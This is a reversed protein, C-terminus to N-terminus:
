LHQNLVNTLVGGVNTLLVARDNASGNYKAIGNLNIDESIYGSSTGTLIGGVKTLIVGRDNSSGNYKIFGDRNVDGTWLARFTNGNYTVTTTPTNTTISPNVYISSATSTFDFVTTTKETMSLPTSTRIGLHNRHRVAVFYDGEPITNFYLVTNGDKDVITGDCRVLASQTAVVTSPTTANRLELFVWDAIATSGTTALVAPTTQANNNGKVQTFLASYPETTPILNLTRLNDNMLGTTTNYSGQLYVNGSFPLSTNNVVAKTTTNVCITQSVTDALTNDDGDQIASVRVKCDAFNVWSTGNWYQMAYNSMLSNWTGSSQWGNIFQVNGIPTPTAFDLQIWKEAPLDGAQQSVWSTTQTSDTVNRPMYTQGLAYQGSASVTADLALNTLGKVSKEAGDTLVDSPYGETNPAFARFERIHFHSSQTSYVRVKSTTIPTTAEISYDPRTRGFGITNSSLLSILGTNSSIFRVPLGTNATATLTATTSGTYSAVNNIANFTISQKRKGISVMVTDSAIFGTANDTVFVVYRGSDRVLVSTRTPNQTNATFGTVGQWTYTFNGSGGTIAANLQLNTYAVVSTSATVDVTFPNTATATVNVNINQSAYCGKSDTVKLTYTGNKALTMNPIFSARSTDSFNNVGTWLYNPFAGSGGSVTANLLVTSGLFTPTNTTPAIAIAPNIEAIQFVNSYRIYAATISTAATTMVCRYRAKLLDIPITTINLTDKTVTSYTAGFGATNGASTVGTSLQAWANYAGNQYTSVEWRYTTTEPVDNKAILTIGGNTCASKSVTFLTDAIGTFVVSDIYTYSNAAAKSYFEVTALNNTVPVGRLIVRRWTADATNSNDNISTKYLTDATNNWNRTKVQMLVSDGTKNSCQIYASLEYLGNPIYEVIQRTATRYAATHKHLMSWTNYPDPHYLANTMTAAITDFTVSNGIIDKTKPNIWNSPQRQNTANVVGRPDGFLFNSLVNLGIATKPAFFRFYEISFAAGAQPLPMITTAAYYGEPTPLASLLVGSAGFQRNLPYTIPYANRLKGNFYFRISDKMVEVGCTMYQNNFFYEKAHTFYTFGDASQGLNRTFLVDTNFSTTPMFISPQLTRSDSDYEFGQTEISKLYAPALDKLRMETTPSSYAQWFSQHLGRMTGGGGYLKCKLEYYGYKLNHISNLGTGIYATDNLGATTASPISDWTYRLHAKGDSMVINKERMTAGFGGSARPTWHTRNYTTSDFEDALVLNYNHYPVATNGFPIYQSTCDTAATAAVVCGNITVSSIRIQAGGVPANYFYFSLYFDHTDDAVNSGMLDTPVAWTQETTNATTSTNCASVLTPTYEDSYPTGSHIAPAGDGSVGCAVRFKVNAADSSIKFKIDKLVLKYSSSSPSIKMVLAPFSSATTRTFTTRTDTLTRSPTETCPATTSPFTSFSPSTVTVVNSAVVNNFTTLAGTKPTTEFLVTQSLLNQQTWLGCLLLILYKISIDKNM